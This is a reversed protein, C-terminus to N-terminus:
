PGLVWGVVPLQSLQPGLLLLELSSLALWPGFPLNTAGPQWDLENGGEDKPEDPIPQFLVNVPFLALRKWFPLGPKAFDWTMTLPAPEKVEGEPEPGARGKIALSLVGWVSGQLSSLLFIGLLARGGLFACIMAVLFKDGAGM